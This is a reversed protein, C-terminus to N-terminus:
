SRNPWEVIVVVISRYECTVSVICPSAAALSSAAKRSTIVSRVFYIPQHGNEHGDAINGWAAFRFVADICHNPSTASHNFAGCEFHPTRAVTDPTRIGGEGGVIYITRGPSM